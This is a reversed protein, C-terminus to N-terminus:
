ENLKVKYIKYQFSESVYIKLREKFHSLTFNVWKGISLDDAIDYLTASEKIDGKRLARGISQLVRIRSKSPSCFVVNHLNRINVGTSFTGISAVIIADSQEETIKRIENRTDGDTGGYVFFVKRGEHVSQEILDYLIKGHKEVYQFLFLSNGNLTLALNKIFENRAESGVIFDIEEQYKARRMAKRTEEKYKLVITKIKLNAIKGDDMLDKTTTVRMVPGFLGELVLKHTKSDDLTGTLGFRYPTTECKELISKVEKAKFLHAEDGIVVNFSKYFNKGQKYISQWTSIIVPVESTKEKGSTVMHMQEEPVWTPDNLAYEAFDSYMQKVLGVTPVILLSKDQLYRIIMYVILSKGSATPSLFLRRKNRIAYVFAEMQYERPTIHDPLNLSEVFEWADHMTFENETCLEDDEVALDYGRDECFTHVHSALGYYLRRNHYSFLRINGDWEKNKYAPMFQYGPVAFCFHDSLQSAIHNECDVRIYTDDIKSIVVDHNSM